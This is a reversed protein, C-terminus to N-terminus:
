IYVDGKDTIYYVTKNLLSDFANKITQDAKDKEARYKRNNLIVIVDHNGKSVKIKLDDFIRYRLYEYGKIVKDNCSTYHTSIDKQLYELYRRNFNQAYFVELISTMAYLQVALDLGDTARSAQECSELVEERKRSRTFAKSSFDELYFNINKLATRKAAQLNTITALRQDDIEMIYSINENAYRVFEIEAMLEAKKDDHLFELIEDLKQNISKMQENIAHMYYQGVAASVATISALMAAQANLKYLSATGKIKNGAMITSSYGGQKLRMLTNPLGKPFVVKYTNALGAEAVIEPVFGILQNIYIKQSEDVSIRKYRKDDALNLSMPCPEISYEAYEQIEKIEKEVETNMLENDINIM